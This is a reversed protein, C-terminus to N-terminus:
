IAGKGEVRKKLAENMMNFGRRASAEVPRMFLPTLAGSLIEIHVFRTTSGDKQELRFIHEGTIIKPHIAHGIWRFEHPADIKTIIPHFTLRPSMPPHITVTLRAELRFEGLAKIMFPNWHPYERFNTLTEWIKEPTEGIEIETTLTRTM